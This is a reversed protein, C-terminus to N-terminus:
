LKRSRAMRMFQADFAATFYLPDARAATKIRRVADDSPQGRGAAACAAACPADLTELHVPHFAELFERPLEGADATRFMSGRPGNESVRDGHRRIHDRAAELLGPGHAAPPPILGAAYLPWGLLPEARALREAAHRVAARALPAADAVAGQLQAVLEAEAVASAKAWDAHSVTAWAFPLADALDLVASREAEGAHLALRALAGPFRALLRLVDLTAPPLGNLGAALTALWGVDSQTGPAGDAMEALRSQLRVERYETHAIMVAALLGEAETSRHPGLCVISPRAIVADGRRLYLLWIGALGEALPPARQNIRDAATSTGLTVEVALNDLSRGVLPLDADGVWEAVHVLCGGRLVLSTEFQSVQWHEAGDDFTLDAVVDIDSFPRLLAALDDAVGRLPLEEDFTWRAAGGRLPRRDRDLLMAQLTCVGRGFAVCDALDSLSLRAAVAPRPGGRVCAGSWRAIGAELPFPASVRLPKGGGLALGFTANRCPRGTFRAVVDDGRLELVLDADQSTLGAATFGEPTYVAGAGDRRCALRADPSLLAVHRRDRIYGTEPDRWAIVIRGMGYPGRRWGREGEPRWRIEEPRAARVNQGECVRVSPPGAFLEVDPEASVLGRPEPGCLSLRDRRTGGQGAAVRYVDGDPSRLIVAGTVRWLQRGDEALDPLADRTSAEGHPSITWSQPVVLILPEPRYQGSGEGILTLVGDVGDEPALIALRGRVAEGGPWATTAVPRGDDRLEVCVPVAFPVGSLLVDRRSPRVRWGDNPDTPPEFIALEGAAYRAFPGTPHARLRQRQGLLTQCVGGHAVGDLALKLAPRWLGDRRWLVRECGIRGDGATHLAEAVLLGDVLRAAAESGARVPLDDRWGPRMADLWASAPVGRARADAEVDRRLRVITAGLDAALAFFVEQRYARPAHDGQMRAAALATDEDLPDVSLLAGVVRTLYRPAWAEAHELVGAPFGGEVALTMLWQHLAAESKQPPRRWASLGQRTLHRAATGDLHVGLAAGLDDWRRIGGRYDRHFWHAAWLVFLAGTERDADALNSRARRRIEEGIAAHERDDLRYRHLPRGDPSSLGARTLIVVWREPLCGRQRIVGSHVPTRPPCASSQAARDRLM